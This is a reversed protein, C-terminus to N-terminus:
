AARAFEGFLRQAAEFYAAHAEEPTDFVGLNHREGEHRIRAAFKKRKREVGKLGTMNDARRKMNGANQSISSLRLNNFRNDAIDGNKHDIWRDPWVGTVYFWAVRHYNYVTGDLKIQWYGNGALSGARAGAKVRNSTPKLWTMAGTEPNYEVLELLREHSIHPM